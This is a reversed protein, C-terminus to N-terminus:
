PGHKSPLHWPEDLAFAALSLPTISASRECHGLLLLLYTVNVKQRTAIYNSIQVVPFPGPRNTGKTVAALMM